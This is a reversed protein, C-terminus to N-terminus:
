QATESQPAPAVGIIEGAPVGILDCLRQLENGRPTRQGNEWRSVTPVSVGIMKAFDDLSLDHADRYARIPHVTDVM